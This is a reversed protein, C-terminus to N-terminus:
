RTPDRLTTERARSGAQCPYARCRQNGAHQRAKLRIGNAGREGAGAGLANVVVAVAHRGVERAFNAPSALPVPVTFAFAHQHV